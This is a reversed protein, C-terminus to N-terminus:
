GIGQGLCEGAPYDPILRAIARVESAADQFAKEGSHHTEAGRAMRELDDLAASWHDFADKLANEDARPPNLKRLQSLERRAEGFLRQDFDPDGFDGHMKNVPAYILHMRVAFEERSLRPGETKSGGCGPLLLASAAILIVALLRRM